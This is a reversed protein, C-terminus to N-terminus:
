VFANIKHLKLSPFKGFSVYISIQFMELYTSQKIRLHVRGPSVTSASKKNVSLTIWM